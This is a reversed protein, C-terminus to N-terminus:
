LDAHASASSATSSLKSAASSASKASASAASYAVKKERKLERDASAKGVGIMEKLEEVKDEAFTYGSQVYQRVSALLNDITSTTQVWRIRTEQLLTPRDMGPIKTEDVGNNRLYARLRADPWTLYAAARHQAGDYKEHILNVLEDRRKQADSRVYGHDILWDRMDSDKWSSWITDKARHYHDDMLKIMKERQIQSDSKIVEHEILWAKLDSDSWRAYVADQTSYYNEKMLNLLKDRAQQYDSKIVGNAVLWEHMYSTSWAEYAPNYVTTYAHKMKELLEERKLEAKTKVFRHEELWDRLESDTWSSWVYDKSDDMARVISHSAAAAASTASRSAHVAGSSLSKSAQHTADGHIATSIATSAVSSYSSIASALKKYRNKALIRLYEVNTKPAIIGQELLFERAQSESWTDVVSEKADGFVKQAHEVHGQAWDSTAAYNAKALATLDDKSYDSPVPINNERLYAALKDSDWTTYDPSTGKEGGFWSASASTALLAVLLVNQVRM